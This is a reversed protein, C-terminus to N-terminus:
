WVEEGVYAGLHALYIDNVLEKLWPTYSISIGLSKDAWALKATNWYISSADPSLGIGVDGMAGSRADPTIRLFPVATNITNVRGDLQGTTLNSNQAVTNKVIFLSVVFFLKRFLKM